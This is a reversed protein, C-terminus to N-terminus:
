YGRLVRLRVLVDADSPSISDLLLNKAVYALKPKKGLRIADAAVRTVLSRSMGAGQSGSFQRWDYLQINLLADRASAVLNADMKCPIGFQASVKDMTSLDVVYLLFSLHKHRDLVFQEQRSNLWKVKIVKEQIDDLIPELELISPGYFRPDVAVEIM